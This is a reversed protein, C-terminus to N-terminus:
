PATRCNLNWDRLERTSSLMCEAHHAGRGDESHADATEAAFPADADRFGLLAGRDAQNALSRHKDITPTITSTQATAQLITQDAGDTARTVM